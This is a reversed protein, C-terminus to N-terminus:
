KCCWIGKERMTHINLVETNANFLTRVIETDTQLAAFHLPTYNKFGSRAIVNAGSSVLLRVMAIEKHNKVFIFIVPFFATKTKYVM